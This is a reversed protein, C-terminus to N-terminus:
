GTGSIRATADRVREIYRDITDDDRPQPLVCEPNDPQSSELTNTFSDSGQRAAAAEFREVAELLTVLQESSAWSEVELGRQLLRDLAMGKSRELDTIAPDQPREDPRNLSEM